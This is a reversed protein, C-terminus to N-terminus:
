KVIRIVKKAVVLTCTSIQFHHGEGSSLSYKRTSIDEMGVASRAISVARNEKKRDVHSAVLALSIEDAKSEANLCIQSGLNRIAM